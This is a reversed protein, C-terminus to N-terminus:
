SRDQVTESIYRKIPGFDSNEAVWRTNLEGSPPTGWPRYGYFITYFYQRFNWDGSYPARVNCVSSLRCVSPRGIVSLSCSSSNVNALFAHSTDVIDCQTNCGKDSHKPRNYALFNRRQRHLRDYTHNRTSKAPNLIKLGYNTITLTLETWTSENAHDEVTQKAVYIGIVSRDEWGSRHLQLHIWRRRPFNQM